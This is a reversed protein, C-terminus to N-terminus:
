YSRWNRQYCDWIKMGIM